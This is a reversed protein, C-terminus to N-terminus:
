NNIENLTTGKTKQINKCGSSTPFQFLLIIPTTLPCLFVKNVLKESVLVLARKARRSFPKVCSISISFNTFYSLHVNTSKYNKNLEIRLDRTDEYQQWARLCFCRRSNPRHHIDQRYSDALLYVFEINYSIFM